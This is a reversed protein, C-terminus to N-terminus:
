KFKDQLQTVFQIIDKTSSHHMWLCRFETNKQGMKKLRGYREMTDLDTGATLFLTIEGNKLKHIYEALSREQRGTVPNYQYLPRIYFDSPNEGIKKFNTYAGIIDLKELGERLTYKYNESSRSEIEYSQNDVILKLDYEDSSYKFSARELDFRKIEVKNFNMCQELLVQIATEALIGRFASLLKADETRSVANQDANMTFQSKEKAIQLAHNIIDDNLNVKLVQYNRQYREGEKTIITHTSLLDAKNIEVYGHHFQNPM